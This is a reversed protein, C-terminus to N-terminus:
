GEDYKERKFNRQNGGYKKYRYFRTSKIAMMAIEEDEEEGNYEDKNENDNEL